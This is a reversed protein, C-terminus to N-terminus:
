GPKIMMWKVWTQNDPMEYSINLQSASSIIKLIISILDTQDEYHFLVKINKFDSNYRSHNCLLLECKKNRIKTHDRNIISM